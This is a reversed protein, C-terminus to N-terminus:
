FTTRYIYKGCRQNRNLRWQDNAGLEGATTTLNIVTGNPGWGAGIIKQSQLVLPTVNYVRAALILPLGAAVAAADMDQVLSTDDILFDDSNQTFPQFRDFRVGSFLALPLIKIFDRRKM